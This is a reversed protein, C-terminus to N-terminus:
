EEFDVVVIGVVECDVVFVVYLLLVGGGGVWGFGLGVFGIDVCLELFYFCVEDVLVYWDDYIFVFGVVFWVVWVYWGVVFGLGLVYCM